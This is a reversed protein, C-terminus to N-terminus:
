DGPFSIGQCQLQHEFPGFFSLSIRRGAGRFDRTVRLSRHSHGNIMCGVVKRRLRRCKLGFTKLRESGVFSGKWRLIVRPVTRVRCSDGHWLVVRM